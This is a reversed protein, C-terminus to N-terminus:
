FANNLYNARCIGIVENQGFFGTLMRGVTFELPNYIGDVSRHVKSVAYGYTTYADREFLGSFYDHASHVVRIHLFHKQGFFSITCREISFCNTYAILIFQQAGAKNGSEWVGIQIRGITRKGNEAFKNPLANGNTAEAACRQIQAPYGGPSKISKILM